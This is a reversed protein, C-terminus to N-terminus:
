NIREALRSKLDALRDVGSSENNRTSHQGFGIASPSDVSGSEGGNPQRGSSCNNSLEAAIANLARSTTDTFTQIDRRWQEVDISLEIPKDPVQQNM